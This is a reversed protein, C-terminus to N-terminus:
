NSPECVADGTLLGGNACWALLTAREDDQLAEVPPDLKLYQAPMTAQEVARAIAAFRANGKRDLVQTDEYTVLPFPAGHATATGHCRQCRQALISQISCWSPMDIDTSAAGSAGASADPASATARDVPPASGCALALALALM